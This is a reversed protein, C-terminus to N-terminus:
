WSRLPAFSARGSVLQDFRWARLGGSRLVEIPDVRVAASAILGQFDSLHGGVPGGGNWRSRQYPLFGIPHGSEELVAVEVNDRVSCGAQSFEPRFYPSALEPEACQIASWAAIEDSTLQGISVARINM